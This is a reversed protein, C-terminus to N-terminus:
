CGFINKYARSQRMECSAAVYASPDRRDHKPAYQFLLEGFRQARPICSIKFNKWYNRLRRSTTWQLFLTTYFEEQQEVFRYELVSTQFAMFISSSLDYESTIRKMTNVDTNSSDSTLTRVPLTELPLLEACFEPAVASTKTINTIVNAITSQVQQTERLELLESQTIQLGIVSYYFMVTVVLSLGAFVAIFTKVRSKDFNGPPLYFCIALAIVAIVLLLTIPTSPVVQM